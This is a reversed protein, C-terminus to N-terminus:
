PKLWDHFRDSLFKVLPEPATKSLLEAPALHRAAAIRADLESEDSAVLIGDRSALRDVTHLQHDSRHEGLMQRRPMLVIPRGIEAATIISGIGAHAVVVSCREVNESFEAPTVARVWSMHAPQFATDGIQALVDVDPNRRAWDDMARTLRDFPLVNGVTVFIM